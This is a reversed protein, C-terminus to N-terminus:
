HPNARSFIEDVVLVLSENMEDIFAQFAESSGEENEEDGMLADMLVQEFRQYCEDLAAKKDLLAM